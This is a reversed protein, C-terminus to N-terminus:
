RGLRGKFIYRGFVECGLQLTATPHHQLGLPGRSASSLAAHFSCVGMSLLRQLTVWAITSTRVTRHANGASHGAQSDCDITSASPDGFPPDRSKEGSDLCGSCAPRGRYANIGDRPM